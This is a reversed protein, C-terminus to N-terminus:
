PWIKKSDMIFSHYMGLSQKYILPYMGQTLCTSLFLAPPTPVSKPFILQNHFYQAILPCHLSVRNQPNRVGVRPHSEISIQFLLDITPHFTWGRCSTACSKNFSLHKSRTDSNRQHYIKKHMLKTNSHFM